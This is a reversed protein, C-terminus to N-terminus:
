ILFFFAPTVILFYIAGSLIVVGKKALRSYELVFYFSLFFFVFFWFCSLHSEVIDFFPFTAQNKIQPGLPFFITENLLYETWYPDLIEIISFKLQIQPKIWDDLEFFRYVQSLWTEGKLLDCMLIFSELIHYFNHQIFYM